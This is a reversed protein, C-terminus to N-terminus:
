QHYPPRYKPDTDLMDHYLEKTTKSPDFVGKKIHQRHDSVASLFAQMAEPSGPAPQPSAPADPELTFAPKSRYTVRIREGARVRQVILDLNDRLEKASITNM